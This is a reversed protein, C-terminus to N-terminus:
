DAIGFPLLPQVIQAMGHGCAAHVSHQDSRAAIHAIEKALGKIFALAKDADQDGGVAGGEDARFELFRRDAGFERHSGFHGEPLLMFAREREDCGQQGFLAALSARDVRFTGIAM